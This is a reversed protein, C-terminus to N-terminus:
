DEIRVIIGGGGPGGCATSEPQTWILEGNQEVLIEGPEGTRITTTSQAPKYPFPVTLCVCLLGFLGFWTSDKLGWGEWYDQYDGVASCRRRCVM